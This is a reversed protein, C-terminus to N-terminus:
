GGGMLEAHWNRHVRAGCVPAFLYNATTRTAEFMGLEDTGLSDLHRLLSSRIDHGRHLHSLFM